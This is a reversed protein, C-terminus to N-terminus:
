KLESQRVAVPVPPAALGPVASPLSRSVVGFAEAGLLALLKQDRHEVSETLRQQAAVALVPGTRRQREVDAASQRIVRYAEEMREPTVQFPASVAVLLGYLPDRQKRFEALRQEGMVQKLGDLAQESISGVGSESLWASQSPTSNTGSLAQYASRFESETFNFGSDRLAHALPSARVQYERLEEPSFLQSTEALEDRRAVTQHNVWPASSGANTQRQLRIMRVQELALQKSPALFPFERALPQFLEGFSLDSAASPGYAEIVAKRVVQDREFRALRATAERAVRPKWYQDPAMPAIVVSAYLAVLRRATAESVGASRLKKHLALLNPPTAVGSAEELARPARRSDAADVLPPTRNENASELGGLLQLALFALLALNLILSTALFYRRM